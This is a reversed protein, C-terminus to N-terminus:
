KPSITNCYNILETMPWDGAKKVKVRQQRLHKKVAAQKEPVFLATFSRNSKYKLLKAGTLLFSDKKPDSFEHNTAGLRTDLALEKSWSYVIRDPGAGIVQYIRKVTDQIALMEFHTAGLNFSELWADSIVIQNDAGASNKYLLILQRNFVDYKLLLNDYTNGRIVVLGKVFDPGSFFPTGGTGAPLLNTYYKGNHLLPDLGYVKDPVADSPQAYVGAITFFM